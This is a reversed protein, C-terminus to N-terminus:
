STKSVLPMFSTNALSKNAFLFCAQIDEQTLSTYEALIDEITAGRGLLGLIFEVTLRTGSVIPKGVMVKPDFVIRELLQADKM